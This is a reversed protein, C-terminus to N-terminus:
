FCTCFFFLCCFQEEERMEIRRGKRWFNGNERNQPVFEGTVASTVTAKVQLSDNHSGNRGNPMNKFISIFMKWKKSSMKKATVVVIEHMAQKRQQRQLFFYVVISFLLYSLFLEM